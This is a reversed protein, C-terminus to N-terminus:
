SNEIISSYETSRVFYPNSFVFDIVSIKKKPQKEILKELEINQM